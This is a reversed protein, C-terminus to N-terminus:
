RARAQRFHRLIPFPAPEVVFLWDHMENAVLRNGVTNLHGDYMLFAYPDRRADFVPFLRLAPVQRDRALQLFFAEEPYRKALVDLKSPLIVVGFAVRRSALARVLKEYEAAYTDMFKRAEAGRSTDAIVSWHRLLDRGVGNRIMVAFSQYALMKVLNAKFIPLRVRVSDGGTRLQQNRERNPDLIAGPSNLDMLDNQYQALVVIDPQLREITKLVEKMQRDITTGRVGLNFVRICKGDSRTVISRRLVEVFNSDRDVGDGFVFSDGALVLHICDGKAATPFEEDPFGLSNLPTTTARSWPWRGVQMHYTAKGTAPDVVTHAHRAIAFTAITELAVLLLLAPTVTLAVLKATRVLRSQGRPASM